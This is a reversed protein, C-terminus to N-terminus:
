HKVIAADIRAVDADYAGGLNMSELADRQRKAEDIKDMAILKNILGIRYAPERSNREVAEIGARLSLARDDLENWAFDSYMALLRASKREHSLAALYANMMRDAPVHCLERRMCDTLSSLASEDQVGVKNEILKRNISDWWADKIPRNLRSNFFILAQEPLITSGKLIASAELPAYVM